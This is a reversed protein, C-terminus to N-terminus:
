IESTRARKGQDFSPARDSLARPGTWRTLVARLADPSMPKVLFDNMGAALCAHRDDEFANATLAVIPTEIGLQRLERATEVGTLGPMRMDMLILDYAGVKVAAIAEEGGSAHDIECGERTLLARALLANIPNDEVLLVRKGPAAATAIREDEIQSAPAQESGAAILVREALSARRLPKILYGAFGLRRYRGILARDEPALLIIARREPPRRILRSGTALAHDVLVVDGFQTDAMLADLDAAAVAIGGCSEIQQAAAQRVIPNPSVIGVKRDTLTAAPVSGRLSRFGAEFWFRAGGEARAEVGVEGDMALALRRAIALGLGAGGMHAHAPDAQAFAEFIRERQAPTVGPGTDDVTFRLRGREPQDVGLLVGGTDTFKVANGAFNLLIQRLRGEDARIAGLDAPAAWAIEVGKERARPSLLECVGRLLAGVDVDTAHLDVKGAGLKAFDLVDNVLTLLHEGSDRIAAAYARQEATLRTSELLRSMGLVGNLPTRFEHSLSALQEASIQARRPKREALPRPPRRM